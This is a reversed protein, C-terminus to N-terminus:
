VKEGLIPPLPAKPFAYQNITLVETIAALASMVSVAIGIFRFIGKGDFFQQIHLINTIKYIYVYFIEGVKGVVGVM